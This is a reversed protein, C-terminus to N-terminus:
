KVVVFARRNQTTQNWQVDEETSNDLEEPENVAAHKEPNVSNDANKVGFTLPKTSSSGGWISILDDFEVVVKGSGYQTGTTITRSFIQRLEKFKETVKNHRTKISNINGQLLGAQDKNLKVVFYKADYKESLVFSVKECQRQKDVNFDLNKFEM